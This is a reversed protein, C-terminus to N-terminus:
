TTTIGTLKAHRKPNASILEGGLYIHGVVAASNTPKIWDSWSFGLGQVNSYDNGQIDQSRYKIPSTMAVPLAYWDLFDENLFYLNGSVCKEDALIPFGKYYLGTFGTGGIFGTGAKGMNGEAKMMPVDKAIREQPQLLQEYLSFVTETTIGLTPKQSGSAAANYLTSMKSLSITGSSATVTSKLTTFTTRSLTGYTAANTGDDVIAELGLFDKSGNGTGDGYFLNGIDDAMDQATSAMELKALDIIKEDTQNSSLEDLPLAVTMQYFKPVFQLNTRNDTASTSFQDFGAFSTGTTNKAYKVPFKMREGNFKQAKALLRTALVNSNLITDVVKPLLKSQTTTLVRNGLASM